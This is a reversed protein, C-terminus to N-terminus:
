ASLYRELTRPTGMKAPKSVPTAAFPTAQTFWAERAPLGWPTGITVDAPHWRVAPIESDMIQYHTNFIEVRHGDPDRIYTYMAHGPGHRGPGREVRDGYGLEGAVDCTRLMTATDPSTYAFHHLRPGPGKFFVLDHPNGKRQLFVGMLEADDNEAIYETLHFGSRMWLRASTAVDPVLIQVHDLRQAAAGRHSSFKTIMRPVVDMTACLEFRAGSPDTVHLTRGQHAASAWATACGQAAFWDQAAALEDETYVRLGVHACCPEGPASRLVLSHHCAEEVGRLYLTGDERATEVLGIVQTYFAASADIDHVTLVIHSTRTVNVPAPYSTRPLPM